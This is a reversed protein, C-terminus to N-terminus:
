AIVLREVVKAWTMASVARCGAEGMESARQRDDALRALAPALAEPTPETVYGEVGDRV